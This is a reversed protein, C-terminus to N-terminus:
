WGRMLRIAVLAVKLKDCSLYRDIVQSFPIVYTGLCIVTKARKLNLSPFASLLSFCGKQISWEEQDVGVV